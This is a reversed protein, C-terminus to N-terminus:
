VSRIDGVLTLQEAQGLVELEFVLQLMEAVEGLPEPHSLRAGTESLDVICAAQFNEPVDPRRTNRVQCPLEARVRTSNRIVIQEFAQPYQLHLHPYPKVPAALVRAEFGVVTDGRLMRVKYVQGDRVIKFRGAENTPCTVVLSSGPLYGIVRVLERPSNEPLTLQLQVTAGVPLNLTDEMTRPIDAM